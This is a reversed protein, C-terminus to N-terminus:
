GKFIRVPNGWRDALTCSGVADLNEIVYGEVISNQSIGNLRLFDSISSWKSSVYGGTDKSRYEITHFKNETEM